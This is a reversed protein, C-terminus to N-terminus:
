LEIQVNQSNAKAILVLDGDDFGTTIAHARALFSRQFTETATFEILQIRIKELAREWSLNGFDHPPLPLYKNAPEFDVNTAWDPDLKDYENSGILYISYGEETEFLGFNFALVTRDPAESECIEHLWSQLNM